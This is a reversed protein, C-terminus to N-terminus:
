HIKSLNEIVNVKHQTGSIDTETVYVQQPIPISQPTNPITPVQGTPTNGTSPTSPATVNPTSGGDFKTALAQITAATGAIGVAISSAIGIPSPPPSSALAKMMGMITDLVIQSVTFIKNTEFQKKRIERTKKDNGAVQNLQHQYFVDSLSKTANLSQATLAFTDDQLKKKAAAEDKADQIRKNKADEEKKDQEKHLKEIFDMLDSENSKIAEATTKEREIKDKEQQEVQDKAKKEWEEARKIAAEEAKDKEEQERQARDKIAQVKKETRKKIEEIELQTETEGNRLRAERIKKDIEVTDLGQAERIAKIENLSALEKDRFDKINQEMQKQQSKMTETSRKTAEINKDLEETSGKIWKTLDEWHAVLEGIAVVVLGIGTAALAIRFLKLAGTSTGVVTTYIAQAASQLNTLVANEKKFTNSIAEVGNLLALSGQVQSLIKNLNENEAGFLAVAGHAAAFGGAIGQAVTTFARLRPTDDLISSLRKKADKMQKEANAIQASLSEFEKSDVKVGKLKEKLDQLELKLKQVNTQAEGTKITLDIAAEEAM